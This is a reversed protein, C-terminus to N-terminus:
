GTENADNTRSLNFRVADLSRHLLKGATEEANEEAYCRLEPANGSLRLHVIRGEDLLVRIGDTVDIAKVEGICLFFDRLAREQQQLRDLLQAAVCIDIDALRGSAKAPFGFRRCYLSIPLNTESASLLMAFIPLFSDRTMLKAFHGRRMTIDSGILTGGNPEFGVVRKAGCDLAHEMAEIVYPSGVRTRRINPGAIASNATVTTIIWDADVFRAANWGLLDGSVINGMDDMMFPRDGDPDTSVVADLRHLRIRKRLTEVVEVDIAETDLPRFEPNRGFQIVSVGFSELLETLMGTALSSGHYIGVRRGSLAKHTTLPRYRELWCEKALRMNQGFDPLDGATRFVKEPRHLGAAHDAIRREDAKSIEGTVSYFKLGNRDASIHSGTVMIACAGQTQAFYALAPTPVPGCLFPIMGNQRVVAAVVGAISESTNRLDWGVLLRRGSNAGVAGIHHCFAAVYTQAYGDLLHQANGRLGSTGFEVTM